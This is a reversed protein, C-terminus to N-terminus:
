KPGRVRSLLQAIDDESATCFLRREAPSTRESGMAAAQATSDDDQWPLSPTVSSGRRRQQLEARGNTSPEWMHALIILGHLARLASLHITQNPKLPVPSPYELSPKFFWNFKVLHPLHRDQPQCATPLVCPPVSSFSFPPHPATQSSLRHYSFFLLLTQLQLLHCECTLPTGM